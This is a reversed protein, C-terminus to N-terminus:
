LFEFLIIGPVKGTGRWSELYEELPHDLVKGFKFSADRLVPKEGRDLLLFGVHFTDITKLRSVFGVGRM